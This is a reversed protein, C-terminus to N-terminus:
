AGDMDDPALYDLDSIVSNMIAIVQQGYEDPHDLGIVHGFEHLLVRHIDYAADQQPGRYSNFSFAQNVMVDAESIGDLYATVALAEDGFTDGFVSDSLFVSNKGDGSAKSAASDFVWSFQVTVMRPNWSALANAAM